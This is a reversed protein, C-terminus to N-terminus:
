RCPGTRSTRRRSQARARETGHSGARTGAPRAAQRREATARGRPRGCCTRGSTRGGSPARRSCRSRRRPARAGRRRRRRRACSPPARDEDRDRRQQHPRDTRDRKSRHGAARATSASAASSCSRSTSAARPRPAAIAAFSHGHLARAARRRARRAYARGARLRRTASLGRARRRQRRRGTRLGTERRGAHSSGRASRVAAAARSGRCRETSMASCWERCSGAHRSSSRTASGRRCPCARRRSRRRCDYAGAHEDVDPHEVCPRGGISLPEDRVGCRCDGRREREALDERRLEHDPEHREDREHAPPAPDHRARQEGRHEHERLQPEGMVVPREGVAERLALRPQQEHAIEGDDRERRDERPRLRSCSGSPSLRVM